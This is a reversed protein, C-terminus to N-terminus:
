IKELYPFLPALRQYAEDTIKLQYREPHHAFGCMICKLDCRGVVPLTLKTPYPTLRSLNNKYAEEQLFLNKEFIDM